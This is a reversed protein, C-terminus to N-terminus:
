KIPMRTDYVPLNWGNLNSFSHSSNAEARAKGGGYRAQSQQQWECTDRRRLGIWGHDSRGPIRLWRLKSRFKHAHM